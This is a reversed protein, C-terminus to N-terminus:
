TEVSAEKTVKTEEELEQVARILSKTIGNLHLGKKTMEEMLKQAMGWDAAKLCLSQILKNYEDAKPQVGYEEMEELLQVAKGFRELKCYGRIMTHYTVPTLKCHNKKAETLIKAAEEMEGGKAYGSMIVTYAFVDPKLGRDEMMRMIKIADAMDGSKCLGNIITNYVTNGPPPGADIMKALLSKAGDIDNIRCLAQIVCTYQKIAYKRKEEDTFDDLMKLALRVNDVDNKKRDCLSTILFNVAAQPPYIKKEKASLYVSHAEKVMGGKCLFGMISGVKGGDPLKGESLMKECVLGVNDYISRRCLAEITYYYTDANTVCSLDEFKSFVEYGAMGKGLRSFLSILANLMKTTVVGDGKEGIEKVLDWLKYAGTKKLEGCVAKVLVELCRSTVSFVERNKENVVWNLFGVLSEGSVDGDGSEANSEVNIEGIDFVDDLASSVEDVGEKWLEDISSSGGGDNKETIVDAESVSETVSSSFFRIGSCSSQKYFDLSRFHHSNPNSGLTQPNLVKNSISRITNSHRSQLRTASLVRSRWM